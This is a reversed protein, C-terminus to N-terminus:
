KFAKVKNIDTGIGMDYCCGLEFQADTDGKEASKKYCEFTKAEDKKVRQKQISTVGESTEKTSQPKSQKITQNNPNLFYKLLDKYLEKPM